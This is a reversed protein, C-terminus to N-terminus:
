RGERGWSGGEWMLRGGGAGEGVGVAGGEGAAGHGVWGCCAGVVQRGWGGKGEAQGKGVAGGPGAWWSGWSGGVWLM